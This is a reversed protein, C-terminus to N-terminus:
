RKRHELNTTITSGRLHAKEGNASNASTRASTNVTSSERLHRHCLCWRDHLYVFVIMHPQAPNFVSNLPCDFVRSLSSQLEVRSVLECTAPSFSTSVFNEWLLFLIIGSVCFYFFFITLLHYRRVYFFSYSKVSLESLESEQSLFEPMLLHM